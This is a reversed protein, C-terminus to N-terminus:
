NKEVHFRMFQPLIEWFNEFNGLIEEHPSIKMKGVIKLCAFSFNRWMVIEEGCIYNTINTVFILDAKAAAASAFVEASLNYLNDCNKRRPHLNKM